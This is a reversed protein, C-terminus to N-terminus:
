EIKKLFRLSRGFEFRHLNRKSRRLFNEIPRVTLYLFRLGDVITGEFWLPVPQEAGLNKARNLIKFTVATLVLAHLVASHNAFFAADFNDLGLYATFPEAMYFQGSRHRVDPKELTQRGLDTGHQVHGEFLEFPNEVKLM